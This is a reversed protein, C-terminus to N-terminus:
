EDETVQFYSVFEGHRIKGDSTLVFYSESIQKSGDFKNTILKTEQTYATLWLLLMLFIIFYQRLTRRVSSTLEFILYNDYGQEVFSAFTLMTM